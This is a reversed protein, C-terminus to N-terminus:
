PKKAAKNKVYEPWEIRPGEANTFQWAPWTPSEDRVERYRRELLSKLEVLSQDPVYRIRITAFDPQGTMPCLCTFEPVAMAVEYDRDPHPNPVAELTRSPTTPM